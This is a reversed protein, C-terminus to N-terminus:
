SLRRMSSLSLCASSPCSASCACSASSRPAVLPSKLQGCVCRSCCCCTLASRNLQDVHMQSIRRERTHTQKQSREENTWTRGTVLALRVEMLMSEVIMELLLTAPQKCNSPLSPQDLDFPAPGLVVLWSHLSSASAAYPSVSHSRKALDTLMALVLKRLKYSGLSAVWPSAANTPVIVSASGGRPANFDRSQFLVSMLPPLLIGFEIEFSVFCLAPCLAFVFLIM